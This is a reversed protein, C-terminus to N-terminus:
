RRKCGSITATAGKGVEVGFTFSVNKTQMLPSAALKDVRKMYRELRAHEQASFPAYADVPSPPQEETM